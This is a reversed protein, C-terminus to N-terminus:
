ANTAQRGDVGKRERKRTMAKEASQVVICYGAITSHTGMLEDNLVATLLLELSRQHGVGDLAKQVHKRSDHFMRSVLEVHHNTDGDGRMVEWTPHQPQRVEEM